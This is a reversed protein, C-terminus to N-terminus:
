VFLDGDVMNAYGNEVDVSCDADQTEEEYIDADLTDREKHGGDEVIHSVCGDLGLEM